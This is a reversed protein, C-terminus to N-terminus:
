ATTVHLASSAIRANCRALAENATSSSHGPQDARQRYTSARRVPPASGYTRWDVAISFGVTDDLQLQQPVCKVCNQMTCIDAPHRLYSQTQDSDSGRLHQTTPSSRLSTLIGCPRCAIPYLWPRPLPYVVVEGYKPRKDRKDRFHQRRGCLVEVFRLTGHRHSSVHPASFFIMSVSTACSNESCRSLVSHPTM